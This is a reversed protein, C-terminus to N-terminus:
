WKLGGMYQGCEDGGLDRSRFKGSYRCGAHSRITGRRVYSLRCLRDSRYRPLTGNLSRQLKHIQRDIYFTQYDAM